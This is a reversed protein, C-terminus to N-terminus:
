RILADPKSDDRVQINADRKLDRLYRRALAAIQSQFLQDEVQSRTPMVYATKVEIRKDCRGILEVGADSLFPAAAEGPRANKMAEQIQPSLEALKADGLDMYVTGNMKKHIEDLQTCGAYHTQIQAAVKMIQEIEAKPARPDVPFLLRALPLTGAPGTPGTPAETIKTGMPEQRERLAIIYYGGTSRIPESIAGVELKALVANLEPALQGENIWGMDGGTAASPHQSFQRAVVPFPAGQRLQNEVEQADKKVKADQEPNDVPLFIELVRYHPKNAGEAYRAMEADIMEPTVNVRDSYEDQVAKQWAISATIQSRLAEESAGANKLNQRLQEITFRYDQTMGNLRKDVELPSVTIKKKQAEQLQLKEAELVELIQGRVRTRQEPTLQQNIGNLALYLAVRQRLEFDSITEDNVTAVISNTNEAEKEAEKAATADIVAAGNNKAEKVADQSQPKDGETIAQQEAAPDTTPPADAAETPPASTQPAAAPAPGKAPAIAVQQVGSHLPPVAPQPRLSAGEAVGAAGAGALVAAGLLLTTAIRM